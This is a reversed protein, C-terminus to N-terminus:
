YLMEKERYSHLTNRAEKICKRLEGYTFTDNLKDLILSPRFLPM